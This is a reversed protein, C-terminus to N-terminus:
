ARAEFDASRQLGHLPRAAPFHNEAQHSRGAMMGRAFMGHAKAVQVVDGNRRQFRDRRACFPRYNKIKVHMVAVAGLVDQQILWARCKRNWEIKVGSVGAGALM